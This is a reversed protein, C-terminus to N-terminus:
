GDKKEFPETGHTPCALVKGMVEVKQGCKPCGRAAKKELEEQDTGEDVGLKEM